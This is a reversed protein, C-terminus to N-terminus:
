LTSGEFEFTGTGHTASVAPKVQVRCFRFHGRLEEETDDEKVVFAAASVAIDTLRNYWNTGDISFDISFKLDNTVAKLVFTKSQYGRINFEKITAYTDVTTLLSGSEAKLRPKIFFEM